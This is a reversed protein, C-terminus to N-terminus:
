RCFISIYRISRLDIMTLNNNQPSSIVLFDRGIETLIGCMEERPSDSAWLDLCIYKGLYKDLYGSMSSKQSSPPISLLGFKGSMNDYFINQENVDEPLAPATQSDAFERSYGSGQNISGGQADNQNQETDYRIENSYIDYNYGPPFIAEDFEQSSINSQQIDSQQMNNNSSLVAQAQIKQYQRPTKRNCYHKM